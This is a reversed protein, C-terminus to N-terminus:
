KLNELYELLDKLQEPSLNNQPMRVGPKLKQPDLVWGALHGPLNPLTGAALRPRSAVHTLDPGVTGRAPTGNITHCLVCSGTLFVQQGKRQAESNPSTGPKRQEELWQQYKAPSESVVVFRMHAHQAGCFEACQGFFNGESEARFWTTTPHGPILDKKGHFNPAWFSHIVDPSQLDFLVAKGVPVHIENATTVMQSPTPEEYQIEWWWQHGTVKIRVPSPDDLPYIARGAAFDSILFVFLIIVTIGILGSIIAGRVREARRSPSLIPPPPISQTRGRFTAVLLFAIVLV